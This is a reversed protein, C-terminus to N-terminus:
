RVVIYVAYAVYLAVMIAGDKRDIEYGRKALIWTVISSVILFIGDFISLRDVKMPSITCSAALVFLINFLNSGIVNGLALENEGKKSAVISTVLEPLSTGFAVITLGVLTETMGFSIAIASASDVVLNGGIVIAALGGLIFVVSLFPSLVKIEEEEAAPGGAARSALTNKVTKFMFYAFMALLVLGNWRSLTCDFAFLLLMVVAAAITFLFDGYLISKDIKMPLILGCVGVVMLLNFINSGIVNGVAIDNSGALSASISVAMEPASTGFAVITLGIIVTPVRLLKAVSSSGEVFFDAGKVLLVFGIVLLIYEMKKRRRRATMGCFDGSRELIPFHDCETLAKGM